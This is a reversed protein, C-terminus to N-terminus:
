GNHLTVLLETNTATSTRYRGRYKIIITIIPTATIIANNINGKNNLITIILIKILFLKNNKLPLNVTQNTKKLKKM